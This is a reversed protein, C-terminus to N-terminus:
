ARAAFAALIARVLDGADRTVTGSGAAMACATVGGQTPAHFVSAGYGPGGGEHGWIPGFPSGPDGMLGLGYSPEAWPPSAVGIPVLARMEAVAALPLLRGSFLGDFCTAIESPTSAIVGHSVWGPHYHARTDVVRGDVTLVNTPAPALGAMDAPTEVVATRRLALPSAIREEVLRALSAEAVREAISTLLMYGVNAYGWGGGPEFALGREFTHQAFTEFAWPSSPTRRVAEHYADLEGYDRLGATHRLLHGLSIRAAGPVAPHWRALADDLSLRGEARLGLIVIAICTKTISYALFRPEEAGPPRWAAVAAAGPAPVIAVGAHGRDAALADLARSAVGLADATDAAHRSPQHTHRRPRGIRRAYRRIRPAIGCPM